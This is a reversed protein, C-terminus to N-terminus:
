SFNLGKKFSSHTTEYVFGKDTNEIEINYKHQCLLQVIM